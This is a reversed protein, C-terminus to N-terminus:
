FDLSILGAFFMARKDARPQDDGRIGREDGMQSRLIMRAIGRLATADGRTNEALFRLEERSVVLADNNELCDGSAAHAARRLWTCQGTQRTTRM